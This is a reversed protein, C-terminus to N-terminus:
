APREVDVFTGEVPITAVDAFKPRYESLAHEVERLEIFQPLGVGPPTKV